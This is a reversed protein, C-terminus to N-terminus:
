KGLKIKKPPSRRVRSASKPGDSRLARFPAVRIRRLLRDLLTHSAWPLPQPALFSLTSGNDPVGAVVYDQGPGSVAILKAGKGTFSNLQALM